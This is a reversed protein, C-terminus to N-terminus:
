QSSRQPAAIADQKTAAQIAKRLPFNAPWSEWRAIAPLLYRTIGKVRRALQSMDYENYFM